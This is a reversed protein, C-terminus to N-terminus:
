EAFWRWGSEWVCHWSQSPHILLTLSFPPHSPHTLHSFTGWLFRTEDVSNQPMPFDRTSRIPSHSPHIILIFSFPTGKRRTSTHPALATRSRTGSPHILLTFSFPFYVEDTPVEKKMHELERVIDASRPLYMASVYRLRTFSFPFDNYKSPPLFCLYLIWCFVDVLVM